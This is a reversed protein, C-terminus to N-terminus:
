TIQRVALEYFLGKAAMLSEYDGEEVIKGADMVLIRDCNKVTSLRHAIVVKTADLKELTEIVQNQTLNDLASTAEDLFIIKPKTVIARAILIRQRQGGSITGAGEAVVTHLGMPMQEIDAELGVERIVEEVRSMRTNPAAIRINDSISGSILGGDQLVVGFKKRLERKDLEDIDRSDYYIKGVDPKEFGLLLKLLTSKGSGSAGVIGVYEGARIQLNMDRIVPAEEPAYRFTVNNLEIEGALDGPLQAGESIEPLTELVPKVDEYVPRIQNIIMFSQALSFFAGSFSGFASTFATFSGISLGINKRFMVFYFVISFVIQATQVLANMWVTMGEKTTNLSQARTFIEMYNYLAREESAANRIKSIGSIYQFVKNQAEVDADRKMREYRVQYLGTLIIILVVVALMVLGWVSLRVSYRFMRWLYLLSFVASIVTMVANQALVNYIASIGYVRQGLEASDYDRFFSEPLNFLRDFAAAQVAYEMTHMSRFSALNKVISFSINGIACSLMVAGLQILGSADGIPIFRDYAQENLLPILLGILTGALAMVFLRVLDSTHVKQMGFLFLDKKGIARDPFPRYFMCANPRIEEALEKTLKRIEGIRPDYVFYRHPGKQFCVVPKKDEQMYALFAGNDKKHWGPELIIERLVFHSVRAIDNLQFRRGGAEKVHDFDAISIREIGCLFVAADYLQNGTRLASEASAATRDKRFQSAILELTQERTRDRETQAGYIAAQAKVETLEYREILMPEFADATDIGLGILDAFRMRVEEAPEEDTELLAATELAVIGIRWSGLEDSSHQMGPIVTKAPFEGVLMRRGDEGDRLPILYVLVSGELVLVSTDNDRTYHIDGGKLAINEKM